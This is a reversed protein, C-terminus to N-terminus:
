CSQSVVLHRHLSGCHPCSVTHWQWGRELVERDTMSGLYKWEEAGAPYTHRSLLHFIDEGEEAPQGAPVSPMEGNYVPCSDFQVTPGLSSRGLDLIVQDGYRAHSFRMGAKLQEFAFDALSLMSLNRTQSDPRIVWFGPRELGVQAAPRNAM